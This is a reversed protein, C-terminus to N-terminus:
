SAKAAERISPQDEYAAAYSLDLIDQVSSGGPLEGIARGASLVIMRDSHQVVEELDSSCWLVSLGEAALNRITEFIQAKAGIDIGRTPEDLLLCTLDRDLWRSLVLKQQNGGSLEGAQSALRRPDFGMRVAASAAWARARSDHLPRGAAARKFQGLAVNWGGSRDLVLGQENRDEPALAMGARIASRPSGPWPRPQGSLTLDGEWVGEAGAITRLLRTRGSGVLGALGVIEGAHIDLAPLDVGPARLKRIRVAVPGQAHGQQRHPAPSVDNGLMSRILQPKTWDTAPRSDIIAHERLVTVNHALDLVHDLDHSIYIIAYGQASLERMVTHLHASDEPGLSATPEDMIILRRHSALARMIELMQQHATSLTGAQTRAKINVGVAAAAADYQQRAHRGDVLGIRSPLRGLLVNSLASMGPVITLEQYIVALGAKTIHAPGSGTVDKGWIAITGGDTGIAGAVAKILTSKGAGNEGVLAHIEGAKVTLSVNKLVRAEGYSKELGEVRLAEPATASPADTNM